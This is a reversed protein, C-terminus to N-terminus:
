VNSGRPFRLPYFVSGTPLYHKQNECIYILAGTTAVAHLRCFTDAVFTKHSTGDAGRLTDKHMCTPVSICCAWSGFESM